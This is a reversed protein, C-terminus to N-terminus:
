KFGRALDSRCVTSRCVTLLAPINGVDGVVVRIATSMHRGALESDKQEERKTTDVHISLILVVARRSSGFPRMMRCDYM